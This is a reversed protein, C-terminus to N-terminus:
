PCFGKKICRFPNLGYLPLKVFGAVNLVQNEIYHITEWDLDCYKSRNKLRIFIELLKAIQIVTLSDRRLLHVEYSSKWM